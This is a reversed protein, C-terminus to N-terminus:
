ADRAGALERYLEEMELANAEISKVVREGAYLADLRAPDDICGGVIEAWHDPDDSRARFGAIGPEVLEAMGGLDSVVLPTRTALAELIVLPSNEYWVSPVCLLDTERLMGAVEGAALRGRLEAGCDAALTELRRVYAPNHSRPGFVRLTARARTAPALRSWAELLVHAGKHPALTGLFAVRLKKGRPTRALGDLESLDIGYRRFVVREEPLGWEVFRERLFRSPAVFRGVTAVLRSRLEDERVRVESALQRGDDSLEPPAGTYPEGDATAPPRRLSDAVRRAPGSLDVGTAGHLAALAKATVREVGSQAWKFDVLCDGCRDHDISHCVTGNAHIRQGFRACQLWFDHLTYVIPLSRRAAEEVCGISLYLLHMFHVLEPRFHDLARAFAAEAPEWEWTERFHEYFFNNTLETVALGDVERERVSGNARAIDKDTTFVRVEHGRARLAQALQFTYIETGAPHNPLFDHSVLLVRM